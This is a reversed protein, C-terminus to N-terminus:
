GEVLAVIERTAAQREAGHLLLVHGIAFIQNGYLALVNGAVFLPGGNM